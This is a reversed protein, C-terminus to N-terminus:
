LFLSWYLLYLIEGDLSSFQLLDTFSHDDGYSFSPIHGLMADSTGSRDQYSLFLEMPICLIDSMYEVLITSHSGIRRSYSWGLIVVIDFFILRVSLSLLPEVLSDPCFSIM